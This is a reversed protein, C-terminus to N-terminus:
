NGVSAASFKQGKNERHATIVTFSGANVTIVCGDTHVYWNKGRKEIVADPCLIRQKCCALVDADEGLSLNKRIRAAGMETTHLRDIRDQLAHRSM